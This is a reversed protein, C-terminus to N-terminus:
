PLGRGLCSGGCTGLRRPMRECATRDGTWGGPNAGGRAGLDAFDLEPAVLMPAHPAERTVIAPDLSFHQDRLLEDLQLFANFAAPRRTAALLGVHGIIWAQPGTIARHSAGGDWFERAASLQCALSLRTQGM